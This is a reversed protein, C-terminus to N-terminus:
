GGCASERLQRADHGFIRRADSSIHISLLHSRSIANSQLVKVNNSTQKGFSADAPEGNGIRYNSLTVTMTMASAKKTAGDRFSKQHGAHSPPLM